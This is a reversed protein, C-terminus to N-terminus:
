SDERERQDNTADASANFKDTARNTNSDVVSERAIRRLANTESDQGCSNEPGIEFGLDVFGVVVAWLAEIFQKKQANEINLLEMEQSAKLNNKQRM